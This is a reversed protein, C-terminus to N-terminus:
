LFVRMVYRMIAFILAIIVLVSFITWKPREEKLLGKEILERRREEEEHIQVLEREIKKNREREAELAIMEEESLQLPPAIHAYYAARLAAVEEEIGEISPQQTVKGFHIMGSADVAVHIALTVFTRKRMREISEVFRVVDAVAAEYLISAQSPYSMEYYSQLSRGDDLIFRVLVWRGADGKEFHAYGTVETLPDELSPVFREVYCGGNEIYPSLALLDSHPLILRDSARYVIVDEETQQILLSPLSSQRRVPVVRIFSYHRLAEQLLEMTEVKPRFLIRDYFYSSSPFYRPYRSRPLPYRVTTSLVAYQQLEQLLARHSASRYLSPDVDIFRPLPVVREVWEGEECVMGRVMQNNLDVRNLTFYILDINQDYCKQSLKNILKILDGDILYGVNM